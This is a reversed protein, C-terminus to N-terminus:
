FINECLSVLKIIFTSHKINFEFNNIRLGPVQYSFMAASECPYVSIKERFM